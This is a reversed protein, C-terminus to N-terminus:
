KRLAIKTVIWDILGSLYSFISFGLFLGLSGGISGIFTSADLVLIEKKVELTSSYPYINIKARASSSESEDFSPKIAKYLNTVKPKLCNIVEDSDSIAALNIRSQNGDLCLDLKSIEYFVLPLCKVEIQDLAEDLCATFNDIGDGFELEMQKVGVNSKTKTQNKIRLTIQEAQVYHWRNLILGQWSKESSIFIDVQKPMKKLKTVNFSFELSMKRIDQFHTFISLRTCLGHELTPLQYVEIISGSPIKKRSRDYFKIKTYYDFEELYVLNLFSNMIDGVEEDYKHDEYDYDDDYGYDYDDSKPFALKLSKGLKTKFPPSFCFLINPFETDEAKEYNSRFTTKGDLFETAQEILYFKMFLIFLFLYISAKLVIKPNCNKMVISTLVVEVWEVFELTQTPLQAHQKFTSSM